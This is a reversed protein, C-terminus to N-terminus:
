RMSSSQRKSRRFGVAQDKHIRSFLHLKESIKEEEKKEKRKEKKREKEKGGKQRRKVLNNWSSDLPFTGGVKGHWM